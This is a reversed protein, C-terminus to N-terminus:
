KGSSPERVGAGGRKMTLVPLSQCHFYLQWKSESMYCGQRGAQRGLISGRCRRWTVNEGGEGEGGIM